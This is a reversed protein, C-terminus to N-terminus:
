EGKNSSLLLVILCIAFLVNIVPFFSIIISFAIKDKNELELFKDIIKKNADTTSLKNMVSNNTLMTYIFITLISSFLLYNFLFNLM